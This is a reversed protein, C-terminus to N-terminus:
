PINLTGEGQLLLAYIAPENLFVGRQLSSVSLPKMVNGAQSRPLDRPSEQFCELSAQTVEMEDDDLANRNGDRQHM